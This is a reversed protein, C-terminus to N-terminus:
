GTHRQIGQPHRIDVLVWVPLRIGIDLRVPLSGTLRLGVHGGLINGAAGRGLNGRVQSNRGDDSNREPQLLTDRHKANTAVLQEICIARTM